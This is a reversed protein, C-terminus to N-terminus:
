ILIAIPIFITKRGNQNQQSDRTIQCVQLKARESSTTVPSRATRHRKEFSQMNKTPIRKKM